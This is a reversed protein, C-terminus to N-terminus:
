GWSRASYTYIFKPKNFSQMATVKITINTSSNSFSWTLSSSNTVKRLHFEIEGIVDINDM